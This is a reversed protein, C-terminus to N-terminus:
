NFDICTMDFNIAKYLIAQLNLKKMNNNFKEQYKNLCDVIDKSDKIKSLFSEQKLYNSVRSFHQDGRNKGHKEVFFNWKVFINELLLERFLFYSFESCRFDTGCDTWIIYKTKNIKKFFDMNKLYKFSQILSIADTSLSNSVIDVNYCNIKQNEYFYLGFRLLVWQQQQYFEQNLQRPSLWIKIKEKFDIQILLADELMHHDLLNYAARQTDAM